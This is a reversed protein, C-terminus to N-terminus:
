FVQMGLDLYHLLDAMLINHPQMIDELGIVVHVDNGLETIIIEIMIELFFPLQALRLSHVEELLDQTSDLIETGIVDYMAVEFRSINEQLAILALDAIKTEGLANFTLIGEQPRDNPRRKVHRRM